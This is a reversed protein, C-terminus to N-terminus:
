NVQSRTIIPQTSFLNVLAILFESEVDVCVAIDCIPLPRRTRDLGMEDAIETLLGAAAYM